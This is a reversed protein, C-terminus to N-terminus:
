AVCRPAQRESRLDSHSPQRPRQRLAPGAQRGCDRARTNMYSPRTETPPNGRMGVVDVYKGNRDFKVVRTNVYGDSVFFTGDPLFAIDTPRAFHTEDNGSVGVTGITQVLQKGDRTFKFLAHQGDDVLWVHRQADFPSVIIPHREPDKQSLDCGSANRTPVV